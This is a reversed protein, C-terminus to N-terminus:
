VIDRYICYEGDGDRYCAEEIEEPTMGETDYDCLGLCIGNPVDAGKVFGQVMGGSLFIRIENPALAPVSELRQVTEQIQDIM